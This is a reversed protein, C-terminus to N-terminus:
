ATLSESNLLQLFFTKLGLLCRRSLNEDVASEGQKGADFDKVANGKLALLCQNV